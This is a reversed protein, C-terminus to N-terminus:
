GGKKMMAEMRKKMEAPSVDEVHTALHWAYGYPDRVSGMRDGYFQNEVPRDVTAGAKVARDFAKDADEVYLMFSVPSGGIAQIGQHEDNGDALMVHSNGIKIEAHAVTGGPGPMRVTEEAGLAKKYFEIAEGAGKMVLYPTVTHYGDPISKVAM